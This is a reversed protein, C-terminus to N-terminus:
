MNLSPTAELTLKVCSSTFKDFSITSTLRLHRCTDYKLLIFHSICNFGLWFNMTTWDQYTLGFDHLTPCTHQIKNGTPSSLPIGILKEHSGSVPQSIFATTQIFITDPKTYFKILCKTASLLGNFLGWRHCSCIKQHM